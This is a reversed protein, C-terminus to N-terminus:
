ANIYEKGQATLTWTRDKRTVYGLKKARALQVSLKQRGRRDSAGIIDAVATSTSPHEALVALVDKIKTGNQSHRRSRGKPASRKAAGTGARHGAILGDIIEQTKQARAVFSRLVDLAENPTMGSM